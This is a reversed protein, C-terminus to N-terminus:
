NEKEFILLVGSGIYCKGTIKYDKLVNNLINITEIGPNKPIFLAKREL